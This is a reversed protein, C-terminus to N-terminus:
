IYASATRRIRMVKTQDRAIPSRVAQNWGLCLEQRLVGDTPSEVSHNIVDRACPTVNLSSIGM